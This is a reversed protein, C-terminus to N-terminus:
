DKGATTLSTEVFSINGERGVAGLGVQYETGPLLFGDPVAFSTSSGPIRATLELNLEPQELYVIWAALGKIPTWTIQFGRVPVGKAGSGPRLFQAPAPLKHSLRAERHLRGGAATSGSFTYVGEPYASRLTAASKPEPSEFRFQRVGLTSADPANVDVVTRGDPGVVTLQALGDERGKAEIVIELDGDTANQEMRISAVAFATPSAGADLNGVVVSRDLGIAVAVGALLWGPKGVLGTGM